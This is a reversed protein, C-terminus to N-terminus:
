KLLMLTRVKIRDPAGIFDFHYASDLKSLALKTACWNRVAVLSLAQNIPALDGVKRRMLLALIM